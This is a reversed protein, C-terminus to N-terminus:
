SLFIKTAIIKGYNLNRATQDYEYKVIQFGNKIFKELLHEATQKENKMDHFEMSITKIKEFVHKPASEIISYEAGECDIKLFDINEIGNESMFLELTNVTVIESKRNQDLLRYNEFLSHNQNNGTYLTTTGRESGIALNFTKINKIGNATVNEQLHYYNNKSPEISFVSAHPGSNKAAFISFYGYHAGIDVITANQYFPFFGAYEREEFISRLIQLEKKNSNYNLQINNTACLSDFARKEGKIFKKLRGFM